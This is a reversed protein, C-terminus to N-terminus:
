LLQEAVDHPVKRIAPNQDDVGLTVPQIEPGLVSEDHTAVDETSTQCDVVQEHGVVESLRAYRLHIGHMLVGSHIPITSLQHGKSADEQRRAEGPPELVDVM